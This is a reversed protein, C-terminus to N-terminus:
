PNVTLKSYAEEVKNRRRRQTDYVNGVRLQTVPYSAAAVGSVVAVRLSSQNAGLKFLNMGDIVKKLESLFNPLGSYTIHGTDDIIGSDRSGAPVYIRGSHGPGRAVATMLSLVLANQPPLPVAPGPQATTLEHYAPARTGVYKGAENLVAGKVWVLSAKASFMSTPAAVFAKVLTEFGTINGDCISWWDADTVPVEGSGGPSGMSLTCAWEENTFYYGGFSWRVWRNPYVM